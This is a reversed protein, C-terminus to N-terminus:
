HEGKTSSSLASRIISKPKRAKKAMILPAFKVTRTKIQIFNHFVDKGKNSHEGKEDPERKNACHDVDSNVEDDFVPSGM